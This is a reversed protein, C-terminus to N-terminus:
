KNDNVKNNKIEINRSDHYFKIMFTIIGAFSIYVSIKLADSAIGDFFIHNTIKLFFYTFIILLSRRIVHYKDIWNM